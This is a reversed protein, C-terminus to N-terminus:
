PVSENLTPLHLSLFVGERCNNISPPEERGLSIHSSRTKRVYGTPFSLPCSLTYVLRPFSVTSHTLLCDGRVSSEKVSVTVM